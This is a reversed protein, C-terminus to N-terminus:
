KLINRYESPKMGIMSFFQKYLGSTNSYGVEFAIDEITLNSETLLQKARNIRYLSLLESFSRGTRNKILRSIYNVNYNQTAAFESLSATKINNEFYDNLM